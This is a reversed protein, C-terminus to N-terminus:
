LSKMAWDEAMLDEYPMEWRSSTGNSHYHCITRSGKANFIYEREDWSIRYVEEGQKMKELAWGFPQTTM